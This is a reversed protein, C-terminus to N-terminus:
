VIHLELRKSTAIHFLRQGRHPGREAGIHEDFRRPVDGVATVAPESLREDFHDRSGSLAHPRRLPGGVRERALDGARSGLRDYGEVTASLHVLKRRDGGRGGGLREFTPAAVAAHAALEAGNARQEFFHGLPAAGFIARACEQLRRPDFPLECREQRGARRANRAGIRKGQLRRAVVSEGLSEARMSLGMSRGPLRTMAQMPAVPTPLVVVRALSAARACRSSPRETATTVSSVNRTPATSCIRRKTSSMPTGKSM